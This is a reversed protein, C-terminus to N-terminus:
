LQLAVSIEQQSSSNRADEQSFFERSDHQSTTGVEQQNAGDMSGTNGVM